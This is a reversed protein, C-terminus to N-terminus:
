AVLSCFVLITHTGLGAGPSFSDAQTFPEYLKDLFEPAIGRGTDEIRLTIQRVANNKKDTAAGSILSV